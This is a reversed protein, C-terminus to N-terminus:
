YDLLLRTTWYYLLRISLDELGPVRTRRDELCGELPMYTLIERYPKYPPWASEPGGIETHYKYAALIDNTPLVAFFM